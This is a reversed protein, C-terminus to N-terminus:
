IEFLIRIIERRMNTQKWKIALRYFAWDRIQQTRQMIRHVLQKAPIINHRHARIRHLRQVEHDITSFLLLFILQFVIAFWMLSYVSFHMCFSLCPFFRTGVSHFQTWKEHIVACRTSCMTPLRFVISHWTDAVSSATLSRVFWLRVAAATSCSFHVLLDVALLISIYFQLEAM